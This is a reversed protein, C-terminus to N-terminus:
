RDFDLPKARPVHDEVHFAALFRVAWVVVLRHVYERRPVPFVALRGRSLWPHSAAMAAAGDNGAVPVQGHPPARDVLVNNEVQNVTGAEVADHSLVPNARFGEVLPDIEYVLLHRGEFGGFQTGQAFIRPEGATSEGKAGVALIV